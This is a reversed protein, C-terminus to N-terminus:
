KQSRKAKIRLFFSIVILIIGSWFTTRVFEEYNEKDPLQEGVIEINVSSNYLFYGGALVLFVLGFGLIMNAKKIRSEM